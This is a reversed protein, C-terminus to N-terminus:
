QEHEIQEITRQHNESKWRLEDIQEQSEKLKQVLVETSHHQLADEFM